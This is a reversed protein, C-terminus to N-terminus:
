SGVRETRNDDWVFEEVPLHKGCGCCFTSGYFSPDKAYTKALMDNMTTVAGCGSEIQSKTWYRGVKPSESEPYEEYAVYNEKGFQLAEENTLDRLPYKPRAGVHVYAYRVPRVYPTGDDPCIGIYREHQGNPKTAGNPNHSDVLTGDTTCLQQKKEKMEREKGREVSGFVM